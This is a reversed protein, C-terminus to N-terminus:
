TKQKVEVTVDNFRVYGTSNIGKYVFGTMWLPSFPISVAGIGSITEYRSPDLYLKNNNYCVGLTTKADDNFLCTLKIDQCEGKSIEFHVPKYRQWNVFAPPLMIKGDRINVELVEINLGNNEQEAIMRRREKSIKNYNALLSEQKERSYSSWEDESIGLREPNDACGLLFINI